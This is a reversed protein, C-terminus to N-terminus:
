FGPEPSRFVHLLRTAFHKQSRAGPSFMSGVHVVVRARHMHLPGPGRARVRLQLNTWGFSAELSGRIGGRYGGPVFRARVSLLRGILNEIHKHNKKFLVRLTPAKAGALFAFLISAQTKL